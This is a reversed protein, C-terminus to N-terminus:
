PTYVEEPFFQDVEVFENPRAQLFTFGKKPVGNQGEYTVPGSTLEVENASDIADRVGGPDLSGAEEVAYGLLDIVDAGVAAFPTDPREGYEAEYEDYFEAMRSGETPFALTSIFTDIANLSAGAQLMTETHNGFVTIVPTTVGNGQLERMIVTTDPPNTSLMIVDPQPNLNAIQTTVATYRPEGFTYNSTGTVEGGGQAFMEAFAEGSTQFVAVDNTTLVHATEWGQDLAFEALAAGEAFTGPTNLFMFDGVLDPFTSAAACSSMVPIGNEQGAQAAPLGADQDCPIIMFSPEEAIIEQAAIAGEAPDSKGDRTVLEIPHEGNLGGEANAQEVALELGNIFTEEFQALWGTQSAVLGIKLTEGASGGDGNDTGGEDDGGCAVFAMGIVMAAILTFIFKARRVM